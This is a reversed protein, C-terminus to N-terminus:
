LCKSGLLLSLLLWRHPESLFCVDTEESLHQLAWFERSHACCVSCQSQNGAKPKMLQWDTSPTVQLGPPEWPSVATDQWGEQQQPETHTNYSVISPELLENQPATHLVPM